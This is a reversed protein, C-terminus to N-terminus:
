NAVAECQAKDTPGCWRAAKLAAINLRQRATPDQAKAAEQKLLMVGFPRNSEFNAMWVTIVTDRRLRGPMGSKMVALLAPLAKNGMKELATAAPFVHIDSPNPTEAFHRQKQWMGRPWNFDLYQILVPIAPAYKQEGLTNIAFAVCDGDAITSHSAGLYSLLQDPSATQLHLCTQARACVNLAVVFCLALVMSTVTCKEMLGNSIAWTRRITTM